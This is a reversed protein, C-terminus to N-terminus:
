LLQSDSVKKKRKASVLSQSNSAFSLDLNHKTVDMSGYKLSESYNSQGRNISLDFNDM